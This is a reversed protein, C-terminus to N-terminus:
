IDLPNFPLPHGPPWVPRNDKNSWRSRHLQLEESGACQSITTCYGFGADVRAIAAIQPEHTFMFVSVDIGAAILPSCQITITTRLDDLTDRVDQPTLCGKEHAADALDPDQDLLMWAPLYLYRDRIGFAEMANFTNRPSLAQHQYASLFTLGQRDEPGPPDIRVHQRDEAELQYGKQFALLTEFTRLRHPSFISICVREKKGNVLSTITEKTLGIGSAAPELPLPAARAIGEKLTDYLSRTDGFQEYVIPKHGEYEASPMEMSFPSRHDLAACDRGTIWSMVLGDNTLPPEDAGYVLPQGHRIYHLSMGHPWPEQERVLSLYDKHAQESM